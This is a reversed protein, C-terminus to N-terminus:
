KLVEVLKKKNANWDFEKKIKLKISKSYKKRLNHDKLLKNIANEIQKVNRAKILEGNMESQIIEKTGGVDTAVCAVGISGAELVSTPLGEAYSPNVFIDAISLYNIIESENKQGLYIALPYKKKLKSLYNGDGIILVKINKIDKTAILLDQVGKAYIIRGVFLIVKERKIHLKKKLATQKQLSIKVFKNTDVSNYICEVNKVKPYLHRIFECSALSIGVCKVSHKIIHRGVTHDYFKGFLNLIPNKIPSHKTGHEFHILPINFKKAFYCGVIASNFFRTQTIVYDFKNENFIKKIKKYEGFKIVPYTNGMFERCKFRYINIGFKNEYSKINQENSTIITVNIHPIHSFLSQVYKEVGGEHPYFYACFIVINM